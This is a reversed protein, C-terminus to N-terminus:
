IKIFEMKRYMWYLILWLVAFAASAEVLSNWRGLRGLLHGVLVNCVRRFDFVETALYVAISSTGIVIFGFAWKRYGRVDIIWYFLALVLFHIPLILQRLRGPKQDPKGAAESSHTIHRSFRRRRPQPRMKSRLRTAPYLSKPCVGVKNCINDFGFCVLRRRQRVVQAESEADHVESDVRIYFPLSEPLRM